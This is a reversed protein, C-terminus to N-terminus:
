ASYFIERLGRCQQLRNAMLKWCGRNVVNFSVANSAERYNWNQKLPAPAYFKVTDFVARKTAWDISATM